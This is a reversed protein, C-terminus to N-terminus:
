KSYIDLKLNMDCDAQHEHKKYQIGEEVYHLNKTWFALLKSVCYVFHCYLM